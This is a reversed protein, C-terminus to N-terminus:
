HRPISISRSQPPNQHPPKLHPRRQSSPVSQPPRRGRPPIRRPATQPQKRSLPVLSRSRRPPRPIHQSPSKSRFHRMRIRRRARKAGYPSGNEQADSKHRNPLFYWGLAIMTAVLAAGLILGTNEKIPWVASARDQPTAASAAMAVAEAQPEGVEAAGADIAARVEALECALERGSQYREVPDKALCRLIVSELKAPLAPNRKRPAVPEEHVIKYFVDTM